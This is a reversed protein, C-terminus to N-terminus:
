LRVGGRFVAAFNISKTRNATRSFVARDKRAPLGRSRRSM